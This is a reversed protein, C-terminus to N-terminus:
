SINKKLLEAVVSIQVRERCSARGIQGASAFGWAAASGVLIWCLLFSVIYRARLLTQEPKLTFYMISLWLLIFWINYAMQIAFTAGVNGFLAHTVRWPDTGFFLARDAQALAADWSFSRVHGMMVKM